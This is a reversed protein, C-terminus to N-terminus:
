CRALSPAEPQCTDGILPHRLAVIACTRHVACGRVNLWRQSSSSWSTLLVIVCKGIPLKTTKTSGTVRPDRSCRSSEDCSASSGLFWPKHSVALLRAQNLRSTMRCQSAAYNSRCSLVLVGCSCPYDYITRPLQLIPVLISSISPSCLTSSRRSCLHFLTWNLCLLRLVIM